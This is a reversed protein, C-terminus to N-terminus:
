GRPRSIVEKSKAALVIDTALSALFWDDGGGGVLVDLAGDDVVRTTVFDELAAVRDEYRRPSTWETLVAQLAQRRTAEPASPLFADGILIDDGGQGLLLDQGFGGILLGRGLGGQLVDDGHGGDLLNVGGGGKLRDNGSDGYLEAPLDISGAV